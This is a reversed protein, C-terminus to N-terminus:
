IPYSLIITIILRFPDPFLNAHGVEIYLELISSSLSFLVMLFRARAAPRRSINSGRVKQNHTLCVTEHWSARFYTRIQFLVNNYGV